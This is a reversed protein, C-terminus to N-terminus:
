FSNKISCLGNNMQSNARAYWCYDAQTKNPNKTYVFRLGIM